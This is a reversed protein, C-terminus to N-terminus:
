VAQPIDASRTPKMARVSLSEYLSYSYMGAVMTSLFLLVTPNGSLSGSLAPGPCFGSLGWGIGFLGAGVFLRPPLDVRTPIQFRKALLPRSRQQSVVLLLRYTTIAAVMVFLLSADWSGVTGFIDLFAIIKEPQLM